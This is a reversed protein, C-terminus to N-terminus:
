QLIKFLLFTHEGISCYDLSALKKKELDLVIKEPSSFYDGM